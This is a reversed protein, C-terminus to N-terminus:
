PTPAGEDILGASRLDSWFSKPINHAFLDMTQAVRRESGIGPIVTSVLPHALPFQLAAAPLPVGHATCISEIAAVRSIIDQSPAAYNYHLEGGGRVGTALIGSNYAGGIILSAGHDACRPMFSDLAGQELLTYRGALLFCDWVGIDMAAECVQWENVGLGIADIDGNRRLEELARYGGNSLDSFHKTNEAGHTLEGIDHVLLVEIRALGLRQLSDEYSRMVGSYTYDYIPKFPMPSCFGHRMGLGEHEPDPKLLRGVKTSVVFEGRPRYRIINGVRRESLGFGYYPATDFYRIGSDWAKNVAAYSSDRSVERYLNGLSAAGFGLETVSLRTQGIKRRRLGSLTIDPSEAM